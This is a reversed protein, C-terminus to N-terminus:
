YGSKTRPLCHSVDGSHPLVDQLTYGLALESRRDNPFCPQGTPGSEAPRCTFPATPSSMLCEVLRGEALKLSPERLLVSSSAIQHGKGGISQVPVGGMEMSQVSM